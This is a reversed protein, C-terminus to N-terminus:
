GEIMSHTHKASFLMRSKDKSIKNGDTNIVYQIYIYINMLCNNNAALSDKVLNLSFNFSCKGVVMRAHKAM